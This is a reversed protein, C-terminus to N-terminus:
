KSEGTHTWDKQEEKPVYRIDYSHGIRLAAGLSLQEMDDEDLLYTIKEDVCKM